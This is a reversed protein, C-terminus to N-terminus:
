RCQKNTHLRMGHLPIRALNLHNVQGYLGVLLATTLGAVAAFSILVSVYKLGKATFAEALPADEGLFKYPVMGTIVLCVGVYLLVCILLSVIIGVPLDRQFTSTVFLHYDNSSNLTLSTLPCRIVQNRSHGPRFFRPISGNESRILLKTEQSQDPDM